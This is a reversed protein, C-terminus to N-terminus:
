LDVAIGCDKLFKCDAHGSLRLTSLAALKQKANYFGFDIFFRLGLDELAICAMDDEMTCKWNFREKAELYQM